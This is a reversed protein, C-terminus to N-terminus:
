ERGGAEGNDIKAKIGAMANEVAARQDVTLKLNLLLTGIMEVSATLIAANQDASEKIRTELKSIDSAMRACNERMEDVKAAAIAMGAESKETLEKSKDAISALAKSVFPLLGKKFLLAIVGGLIVSAASLIEAAYNELWEAIIESTTLEVDEAGDEPIEEPAPTPVTEPAADEVGEADEVVPPVDAVEEAAAPVAFILSAGLLVAALSAIFKKM